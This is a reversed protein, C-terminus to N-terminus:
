AVHWRLQLAPTASGRWIGSMQHNSSREFDSESEFYKAKFREMFPQASVFDFLAGEDEDSLPATVGANRVAKSLAPDNLIASVADTIDRVLTEDTHRSM